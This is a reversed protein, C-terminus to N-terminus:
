RPFNTLSLSCWMFTHCLSYNKRALRWGNIGLTPKVSPAIAIEVRVILSPRIAAVPAAIGIARLVLLHQWSLRSRNKEIFGNGATRIIDAVEFPPKNM